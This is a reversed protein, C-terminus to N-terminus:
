KMLYELESQALLLGNDVSEEGNIIQIMEDGLITYFSPWEKIMPRYIGNELAECLGDLRPYKNLIEPDSLISYRCPILGYSVCERQVGPDMLYELLRLASAKDSCNDPIGLTWIGYINSNYSFSGEGTKGPFSVYDVENNMDPEIWGPWGVAVAMESHEIGNVIDDGPAKEGNDLLFMYIEIAKKFEETNVTPKNNEDVVWGGCARLIPLFDVVTNNASDGRFAFGGYGAKESQMIYNVMDELSDFDEETYGLKDAVNKNYLMVSVNGFYPALYVDNDYICISTTAGIIDDDISYGEKSLNTMIGSSRFEPVWSGDIMCVDYIGSINVCDNLIENRLEDESFEMVECSIGTKEEFGPICNKIVEAYVGSRVAITLVDKTTPDSTNGCGTQTMLLVLCM